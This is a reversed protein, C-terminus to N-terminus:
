TEGKPQQYNQTVVVNAHGLIDRVVELGAEERLTHSSHTTRFSRRCGSDSSNTSFSDRRLATALM